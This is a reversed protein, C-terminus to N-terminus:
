DAQRRGEERGIVNVERANLFTPAPSPRLPFRQVYTTPLTFPLLKWKCKTTCKTPVYTGTSFHPQKRNTPVTRRHMNPTEHCTIYKDASIRTLDELASHM